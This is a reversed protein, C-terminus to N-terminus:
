TIRECLFDRVLPSAVVDGGFPYLEDEVELPLAEGDLSWSEGDNSTGSKDSSLMV